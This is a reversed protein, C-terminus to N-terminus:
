ATCRIIWTTRGYDRPNNSNSTNEYGRPCQKAAQSACYGVSDVCTITYRNDGMPYVRVTSFTAGPDACSALLPLACGM